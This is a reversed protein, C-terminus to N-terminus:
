DRECLHAPSPSGEGSSGEHSGTAQALWLKFAQGMEEQSVGEFLAPCSLLSWQNHCFHANSSAPGGTGPYTREPYM